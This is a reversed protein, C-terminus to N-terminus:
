VYIVHSLKSVGRVPVSNSGVRSSVSSPKPLMLPKGSEVKFLPSTIGDSGMAIRNM